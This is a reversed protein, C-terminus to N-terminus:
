CTESSSIWGSHEDSNGEPHFYMGVDDYKGPINMSVVGYYEPYYLNNGFGEVGKEDFIEQAEKGVERLVVWIKNGLDDIEKQKEKVFNHFEETSM